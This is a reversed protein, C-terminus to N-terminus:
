QAERYLGLWSLMRVWFTRDDKLDYADDIGDRDKDTAKHINSDRSDPVGDYDVDQYDLDNKGPYKDEADVVGDGDSDTYLKDNEGPYQDLKDVVGDHDSDNYGSLNLEPITINIPTLNSENWSENFTENLSINELQLEEVPVEEYIIEEEMEKTKNIKTSSNNSSNSNNIPQPPTYPQEEFDHSFDWDDPEEPEKSDDAKEKEVEHATENLTENISDEREVGEREDDAKVVHTLAIAFMGVVFFTFLMKIGTKLFEKKTESGSFTSKEQKMKMVELVKAFLKILFPSM